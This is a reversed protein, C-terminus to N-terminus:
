TLAPIVADCFLTFDSEAEPHPGSITVETGLFEDTELDFTDIFTIIGADRVLVGGRASQIKEPLGNFSTTYSITGAGEDIIATGTVIGASSVLVSKGNDPNTYTARFSSADKFSGDQYVFFNDSVVIVADVEIGCLDTSFSDTFQDHFQEIPKSAALATGPLLALVALLAALVGRRIISVM